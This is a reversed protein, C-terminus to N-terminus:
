LLVPNPNLSKQLKQKRQSNQYMQCIRGWQYLRQKWPCWVWIPPLFRDLGLRVLEPQTGAALMFSSSFVMLDSDSKNTEGWFGLYGYYDSAIGADAACDRIGVRSIAAPPTRYLGPLTRYIEPHCSLDNGLRIGRYGWWDLTRCHCFVWWMDLYGWQWTWRCCDPNVLHSM